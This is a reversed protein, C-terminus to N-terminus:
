ENEKKDNNKSTEKLMSEYYEIKAKLKDNKDTISDIDKELELIKDELDDVDSELSEVEDQLVKIEIKKDNLKEQMSDKVIYDYIYDVIKEHFDAKKELEAVKIEIDYYTIM